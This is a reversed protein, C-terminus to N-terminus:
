LLRKTFFRCQAASTQEKYEIRVNHDRGVLDAEVNFTGLSPNNWEDILLRGDLWLRIGNNAKLTLQWRGTPLPLVGWWRASFNDVGTRTLAGSSGWDFNVWQDFRYAVPVNRDLSSGPPPEHLTEGRYYEGFFGDPVIKFELDTSGRQQFYELGIDVKGGHHEFHASYGTSVHTKWENILPKQNVFIRVGDDGRVYIRYRGLPLTFTRKAKASWDIDGVTSIPAQLPIQEISDLTSNQVHHGFEKDDYYDIAWSARELNLELHGGWKSNAYEIAIDHVGAELWIDSELWRKGLIRHQEFIQRGDIILRHGDDSQFKATYFGDDPIFVRRRLHVGLWDSPVSGTGPIGSKFEDINEFRIKLPLNDKAYYEGAMNNAGAITGDFKPAGFLSYIRFMQYLSDLDPYGAGRIANGKPSQYCSMRWDDESWDFNLFAHFISCADLTPVQDTHKFEVKVQHTGAAITVSNGSSGNIMPNWADFVKQNGVYIRCGGSQLAHFHYKGGRFPIDATARLSFTGNSFANAVPPLHRWELKNSSDNFTTAPIGSLTTGAYLEYQFHIPIVELKVKAYVSNEFYEVKLITDGGHVYHLEEYTTAAQIKWGNIVLKDDVWLRAGDDGTLRFRYWGARMRRTQSFRASFNNVPIGTLPQSTGWNFDVDDVASVAKPEGSLVKNDFFEARWRRHQNDASIDDKLTHASKTYRSYWGYPMRLHGGYEKGMHNNPSHAKGWSNRVIFYGGEWEDPLGPRDAFGILTVCHGSGPGFKDLPTPFTITGTSSRWGDTRTGIGVCRGSRIASKAADIDRAGLNIVEDARYFAARDIAADIMPTQAHNDPLNTPSYPAYAEECSGFDCYHQLAASCSYGGASNLQGQKSYWFMMQESLNRPGPRADRLFELAEMVVTSGFSTCTGRGGQDRAPGLYPRLDVSEQLTTLLWPLPYIDPKILEGLSEKDIIALQDLGLQQDLKKFEPDDFDLQGEEKPQKSEWIMLERKEDPLSDLASMLLASLQDPRIKLELALDDLNDINLAIEALQDASYIGISILRKRLTYSSLYKLPRFSILQQSKINEAHRGVRQDIFSKLPIFKETRIKYVNEPM